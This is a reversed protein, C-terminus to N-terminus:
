PSRCTCKITAIGLIILNSARPLQQLTRETYYEIIFVPAAIALNKAGLRM